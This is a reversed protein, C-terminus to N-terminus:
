IRYGYSSSENGKCVDPNLSSLNWHLNLKVRQMVGQLPALIARYYLVPSRARSPVKRNVVVDLGARPGV